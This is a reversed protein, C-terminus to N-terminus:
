GSHRSQVLLFCHSLLWRIGQRHDVGETRVQRKGASLSQIPADRRITEHFRVTAKAALLTANLEFYLVVLDDAELRPLLKWEIAAHETRLAHFAIQLARM